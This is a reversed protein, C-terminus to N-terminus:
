PETAARPKFLPVPAGGPKSLAPPPIGRVLSTSGHDAQRHKGIEWGLLVILCLLVVSCAYLMIRRRARWLAIINAIILAALVCCVM